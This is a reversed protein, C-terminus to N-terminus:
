PALLELDKLDQARQEVRMGYSAQNKTCVLKYPRGQRDTRTDVDCGAKRITELVHSRDAEAAKFVWAKTGPDDLFRALQQCHACHCPLKSARRWDAPPALPEAVRARLHALVADRLPGLAPAHFIAHGALQRLAPLLIADVGYTRPKALVYAVAREALAPDIAALGTLADAVLGPEVGPREELARPTHARDGPSARAPDGPLAALLLSAAGALSGRRDDPWVTALRALLNAAAAPAAAAPGRMLHEILTPASEPPLTELAAIIATNDGQRRRRAFVVARLFREIADTDRLRVLLGLMRAIDSPQTGEAYYWDAQPWAAIMYGALDHAEAVLAAQEAGASDARRQTLDELYPLTAKLGGQALVAFRAHAPWLVLAARRYTREYSAGENGTAEHFHEEDPDLDDLTNPPAFEDDEAPIEGAMRPSGDPARWQSLIVSRDTMEGAEFEDEYDWRGRRYSGTDAYEAIGSEEVALLALHLDCQAQAAAAALVGAVAADVGKLKAFDLEAQTYAHELIHIVKDPTGDDVPSAKRASWAELLSALRGQEREYGPPEPPKGGGARLLNYVLTLRHGDTVPLVEHVCDAYFAAFGVEAPDDRHLDLRAERGKNRVILEGGAFHSPLVIVLTGFMGAAKETDRHGVFFGGTEYLLLKHLEASIPKDVGLGEPLRALISDLTATWGRGGIRVHQPAIQWSRRVAPDVLTEEGRGYPAPEAAAALQAAQAPLLPLAIPGVGDVLLSPMRLEATGAVFFDGPRRVSALISALDATLASM